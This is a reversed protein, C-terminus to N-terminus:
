GKPSTRLHKAMVPISQLLFTIKENSSTAISRTISMNKSKPVACHILCIDHMRCIERVM